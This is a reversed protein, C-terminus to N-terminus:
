PGPEGSAEVAVRGTGTGVLRRGPRLGDFTVSASRKQGGVSISRNGFRLRYARGDASRLEVRISIFPPVQVLPPRVSGGRGTFLAQSRAPQEDGAGGPTDEASSPTTLDDEPVTVTEERAPPTRAPATATAQRETARTTDTGATDREVGGEDDGCGSLAAASLAALCTLRLRRAAWASLHLTTVSSCAGM